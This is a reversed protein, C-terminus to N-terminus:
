RCYQPSKELSKMLGKWSKRLTKKEQVLLFFCSNVGGFRFVYDVHERTSELVIKSFDILLKDGYEHGQTDNVIKFNNIDMFVSSLKIGFRKAKSYERILIDKFSRRNLLGKLPDTLALEELKRNAEELEM